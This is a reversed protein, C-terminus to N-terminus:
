VDTFTMQVKYNWRPTAFVASANNFNDYCCGMYYDRFLNAIPGGAGYDVSKMIKLRWTWKAAWHYSTTLANTLTPLRSLTMYKRKIFKFGVVNVPPPVMAQELEGTGNLINIFTAPLSANRSEKVLFALCRGSIYEAATNVIWGEITIYRVFIKGGIRQNYTTGQAPLSIARVIPGELAAANDTSARIVVNNQTNVTFKKEAIKNLKRRFVRLSRKFRRLKSGRHSSRYGKHARRNKTHAKRYKGYM